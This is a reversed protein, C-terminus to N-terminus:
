QVLYAGTYRNRYRWQPVRGYRYPIMTCPVYVHVRTAIALTTSLTCPVRTGHYLHGHYWTPVSRAVDCIQVCWILFTRVRARLPTYWQYWPVYVYPDLGVHECVNYHRNGRYVEGTLCHHSPPLSLLVHTGHYWQYTGHYVHVRALVM